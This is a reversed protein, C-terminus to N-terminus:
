GVRVCIWAAVFAELLSLPIALPLISFPLVGLNGIVLWMWVFGVFWSFLATEVLTFKRSLWYVALAFLFSWLVWVMGNIPASPYDVGLADYHRLWHSKLLIENRFFESASVWLGALIVALIPRSNTKM